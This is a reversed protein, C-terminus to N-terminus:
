WSYFTETQGNASFTRWWTNSYEQGAANRWTVKVNYTRGVIAGNAMLQNYTDGLDTYWTNSWRASYNGQEVIEIRYAWYRSGGWEYPYARAYLNGTTEGGGGGGGGGGGSAPSLEVLVTRTGGATITVEGVATTYGILTVYILHTGAVVQDVRFDGNSDTSALQGSDVLVQAGVLPLGSTSQVRGTLTGATGGGGGSVTVDMRNSPYRNVMVVLKGSSLGTPVTFRISTPTWSQLNEVPVTVGHIVLLGTAPEGFGSGTVDVTSGATLTSTSLSTITPAPSPAVVNLNLEGATWAFIWHGGQPQLAASAGVLDQFEYFSNSFTFMYRYLWATGPLVEDTAAEEVVKTTGAQRTMTMARTPLATLSPCGVLNWGAQLSVTSRAGTNEPGTVTVSAPQDFWAWYARTTDLQEPHALPDVLGYSTGGYTFLQYTFGSTSSVSELPFSFLSWGAPFNYTVTRGSVTEAARAPAVGVQPPRATPAAPASTPSLPNAVSGGGAAMSSPAPATAGGGGGGCGPILFWAAMLVLFALVRTATKM